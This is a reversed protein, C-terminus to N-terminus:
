GTPCVITAALAGGCHVFVSPSLRVHTSAFVAVSTFHKHGFIVNTVHFGHCLLFFGLQHFPFLLYCDIFVINFEFLPYKEVKFACLIIHDLTIPPIRGLYGDLTSITLAFGTVRIWAFLAKSRPFGSQAFIAVL